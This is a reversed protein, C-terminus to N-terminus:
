MAVHLFNLTKNFLIGPFKKVCSIYQLMFIDHISYQPNNKLMYPCNTESVASLVNNLIGVTGILESKDRSVM